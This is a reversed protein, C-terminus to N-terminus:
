LDLERQSQWSSCDSVRMSISEVEAQSSVFEVLGARAGLHGGREHFRPPVPCSSTPLPPCNATGVLPEVM